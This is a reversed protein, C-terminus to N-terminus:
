NAIGIVQGITKKQDLISLMLHAVNARSITLGHRLNQNFATRYIGTLPGNTLRPPRIITWDLDSARLVDEMMALDAYQKRLAAKTLPSFLYRM